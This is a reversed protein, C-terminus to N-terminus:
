ALTVGSLSAFHDKATQLQTADLVVGAMFHGFFAGPFYLQTEGRAGYYVRHNGFATAGSPSAATIEAGGNRSFRHRPVSFDFLQALVAVDPAGESIKLGNFTTVGRVLSYYDTTSNATARLFFGGDVGDGSPSFELITGDGSNTRKYAATISSLKGTGTLDIFESAMADDTGDYELWHLDTDTGTAIGGLQDENHQYDALVTGRNIQAGWALIDATQPGNLQEFFASGDGSRLGFLLNPNAATYSATEFQQWTGTVTVESGVGGSGTYLILNKTSGDFTKLWIGDKYTKSPFTTNQAVLSYDGGAADNGAGRSFQVRDATETGDPATGANVTVVPASGTGAFLKQWEAANFAESWKLLNGFGKSDGRRYIPRKASTAQEAHYGPLLKVDSVGQQALMQSVTKGNWQFKDLILGVPQGKATVPTAGTSDQYLTDTDSPDLWIGTTGALTLDAALSEMATLAAVAAPASPSIGSRLGALSSKFPSRM